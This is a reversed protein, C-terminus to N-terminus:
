VRLPTNGHIISPITKKKKKKKQIVQLQHREWRELRCFQRHNNARHTDHLVFFKDCKNQM